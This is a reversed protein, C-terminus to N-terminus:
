LSYKCPTLLSMDIGSHLNIVKGKVEFWKMFKDYRLKTINNYRLKEYIACMLVEISRMIESSCYHVQGLLKLTDRYDEHKQVLKSSSFSVSM